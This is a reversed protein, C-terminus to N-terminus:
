GCFAFLLQNISEKKKKKRPSLLSITVFLQVQTAATVQTFFKSLCISYPANPAVTMVPNKGVESFVVDLLYEASIVSFRDINVVM